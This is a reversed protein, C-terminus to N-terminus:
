KAVGCAVGGMLRGGALGARGIGIAGISDLKDADYLVKAELTEPKSNERFRHSRICHIINSQQGDRFPYKRLLESAM